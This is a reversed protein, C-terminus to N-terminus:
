FPVIKITPIGSFHKLKIASGMKGPPMVFLNEFNKDVTM